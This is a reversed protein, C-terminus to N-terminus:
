RSFLHPTLNDMYSGFTDLMRGVPHAHADQYSLTKLKSDIDAIQADASMKKLTSGMGKRRLEIDLLLADNASALNKMNSKTYSADALNKLSASDMQATSAELQKLEAKFKGAELASSVSPGAQSMDPVSSQLGQPASAPGMGGGAIALLPNFGAAELDKRGRQYATSSMHESFRMADEASQHAMDGQWKLLPIQALGGTVAGAVGGLISDLGM